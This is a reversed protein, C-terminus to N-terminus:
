RQGEPVESLLFLDELNLSGELDSGESGYDDGAPDLYRNKRVIAHRGDDDVFMEIRFDCRHDARKPGDPIYEGTRQGNRYEDKVQTVWVVHYGQNKIWLTIEDVMDNIGGYQEQRIWTQDQNSLFRKIALAKLDYTNDIIVSDHENDDERVTEQVEDFSTAYAYNSQATQEDWDYIKLVVEWSEGTEGDVVEVDHDQTRIQTMATDIHLPNPWGEHSAHTKGSGPPGFIETLSNM